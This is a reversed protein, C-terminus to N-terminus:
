TASSGAGSTKKQFGTAVDLMVKRREEAEPEPEDAFDFLVLEDAEADSIDYNVQLLAICLDLQSVIGRKPDDEAFEVADFFAQLKEWYAPGFSVRPQFDNGDPGSKRGIIISPKRLFWTQGDALVVPVDARFGPRRRAQEEIRATAQM